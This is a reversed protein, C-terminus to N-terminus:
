ILKDDTYSFAESGRIRVGPGAMNLRDVIYERIGGEVGMFEENAQPDVWNEYEEDGVWVILVIRTYKGLTAFTNGLGLFVPITSKSRMTQEDDQEDRLYVEMALKKTTGQSVYVFTPDFFTCVRRHLLPVNGSADLPYTYRIGINDTAAEAQPSSMAIDGTNEPPQADVVITIQAAYFAIRRKRLQHLLSWHINLRQLHPLVRGLTTFANLHENLTWTYDVLSLARIRPAKAMDTYAGAQEKGKLREWFQRWPDGDNIAFELCSVLQGVRTPNAVHVYHYFQPSVWGNFTTCTLMLSLVDSFEPDRMKDTEEWIQHLAADVIQRFIDVPFAKPFPIHEKTARRSRQRRKVPNSAYVLLEPTYKQPNIGLIRWM